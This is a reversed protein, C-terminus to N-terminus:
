AGLEIEDILEYILEVTKGYYVATAKEQDGSAYVKVAAIRGAHHEGYLVNGVKTPDANLADTMQRATWLRDQKLLERCRVVTDVPAPTAEGGVLFKEEISARIARWKASYEGDVEPRHNDICYARVLDGVEAGIIEIVKPSIFVQEGDECVAFASGGRTINSISCLKVQIDSPKFFVAM